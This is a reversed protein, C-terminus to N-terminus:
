RYRAHRVGERMEPEFHMTRRLMQQQRAQVPPILTEAGAFERGIWSRLAQMSAERGLFALVLERAPKSGGPELVARRYRVATAGDLLDTSDFEAFFELAMVKDYLYTYYNSTYGVLHTFAAYMRNGDVFEYRSFRDYGERLLKDLNLQAADLDHTNLSYTAYMVQTLTSLARGHASARTMRAVTEHPIPEGTQYHKAFTRLLEADEFFEELMQSPVEVFDGETAIGSQGAWRQRGGLVEHMLHGFEHFYTVVDSYQMLGADSGTPQPFNCVLSAEPMQRGLIGGVLSCESFWKSKGERPHMDLYIRGVVTGHGHGGGPPVNMATGDDHTPHSHEEVGRGDVVDFAKVGDAWVVADRAREFRVGFLRGATALIGAEVQEYPFYPRVSQSDFDYRSRRYQEEWFRADSLSLPLADPKRDRVFAELEVFERQAVERAAEEVEGLFTRMNAASGMMQDVTALDAWSRFGLLGAMEERAALLDLLVQKNAPYGRDNYALYMRRRLEPSAAYSMVPSMEPPDTTLHIPGDAVLRGQAGHTGTIVDPPGNMVNKDDLTTGASDTPKGPHLVERVGHRALYDAPLGALDNADDVTIKRVDDQVTRSFSMSLETMRDALARIRDRTADDKDVGSLRYGLLTRELYYKTAADEESAAVVPELVELAKYVERNLNLAVSEASIVQQLQQAADRVAALPHVMFMVGSQSGAMRLHWCGRDFPVLTNEVTRQGTVALLERIQARSAALHSEVWLNADEGGTLTAWIHLEDNKGEIGVTEIERMNEGAEM